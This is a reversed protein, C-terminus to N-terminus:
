VREIMLAIGHGVNICITCLGYRGGTGELQNLATTALRAGGAGLPHGLVIAGGNPNVRPDDDTLGLDHLVTLGQAAFAENPEIVDMQSLALGPAANGVALGPVGFTGALALLGALGIGAALAAWIIPASMALLAVCAAVAGVRLARQRLAGAADAKHRLWEHQM